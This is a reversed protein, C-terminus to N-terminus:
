AEIASTAAKGVPSKELVELKVASSKNQEFLLALAAIFLLGAGLSFLFFTKASDTKLWAKFDDGLQKDISAVLGGIIGTLDIGGAAPATSGAPSGSATGAGGGASDGAGGSGGGTSPLGSTAGTANAGTTSAGGPPNGSPGFFPAILDGAGQANWASYWRKEFDAFQAQIQNCYDAVCPNDVSGAPWGSRVGVLGAWTSPDNKSAWDKIAAWAGGMATAAYNANTVPDALQNAFVDQAAKDNPFKAAVNIQFLGVSYEPQIGPPLNTRGRTDNVAGPNGGSEHLMIPVWIEPPVGAQDFIAKVQPVWPPDSAM